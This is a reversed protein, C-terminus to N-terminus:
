GDNLLDCVSSLFFNMLRVLCKYLGPNELIGSDFYSPIAESIRCFDRNDRKDLIYYGLLLAAIFDGSHDRRLHTIFRPFNAVSVHPAIDKRVKEGHTKKAILFLDLLKQCLACNPLPQKKILHLYVSCIAEDM